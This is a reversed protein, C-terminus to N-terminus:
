EHNLQYTVAPTEAGTDVDVNLVDHRVLKAQTVSLDEVTPTQGQSVLFGHIAGSIRNYGESGDAVINGNDAVTHWYWQGGPQKQSFITKM